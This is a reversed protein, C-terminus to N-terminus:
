PRVGEDVDSSASDAGPFLMRWGGFALAALTLGITIGMRASMHRIDAAAAIGPGRSGGSTGIRSPM